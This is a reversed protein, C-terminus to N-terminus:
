FNKLDLYIYIYINHFNKLYWGNKHSNLPNFFQILYAIVYRQIIALYTFEM